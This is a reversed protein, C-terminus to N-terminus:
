CPLKGVLVATDIQRLVVYIDVVRVQDESGVNLNSRLTERYREILRGLSSNQFWVNQELAIVSYSYIYIRKLTGGLLTLSRVKKFRLQLHLNSWWLVM